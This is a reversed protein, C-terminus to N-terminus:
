AIGGRRLLGFAIDRGNGLVMALNIWLMAVPELVRAMSLSGVRVAEFGLDRALTVATVCADADDGCVFMAARQTGYVPNAMNETGTSNFAKVVRASPAWQAVQEAGSDTHGHTLAFGPGIPNTADLLPKGAFDGAAALASQTANWPTAIIVVDAVRVADAIGALAVGDAALWEHKPDTPQRVGFTVGHGSEALRRLLWADCDGSRAAASCSFQQQRFRGNPGCRAFTTM